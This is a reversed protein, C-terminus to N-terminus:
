DVTFKIAKFETEKESNTQTLDKDFPHNLNNGALDELKSQVVLTYEGLAFPHEPQFKLTQEQNILRFDGSVIDKNSNEIHFSKSALVGDLPEKFHVTLVDLNVLLEWDEIHLMKVDREVVNFTKQYPKGLTNGQADGWNSDITLTYENGKLIPLGKEKNPILDTKIRGPDLWLTLRTHEKNWLETNLELFVDVEKGTNNNTVKIFDLASGVEQMPKSFQFYMKLLNEPLTNTSPYIAILTPAEVDDNKYITFSSKQEGNEKLIYTIGASFPVVPEFTYDDGKFNYSGLLPTNLNTSLFVKAKQTALQSSYTISVAKGSQYIVEIDEKNETKCSLLFCFVVLFVKTTKTFTHHVM